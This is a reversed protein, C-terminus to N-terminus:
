GHKNREKLSKTLSSFGNILDHLLQLSAQHFTLNKAVQAIALSTIVEHACEEKILDKWLVRSSASARWTTLKTNLLRLTVHPRLWYVQDQAAAPTLIYYIHAM